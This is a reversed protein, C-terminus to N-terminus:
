MYLKRIFLDTLVSNKLLMVDDDFYRYNDCFGNMKLHKM